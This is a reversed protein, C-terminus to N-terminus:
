RVEQKSQSRLLIGMFGVFFFFVLSIHALGISSSRVFLPLLFLTSTPVYFCAFYLFFAFERKSSLLNVLPLTRLLEFRSAKFVARDLTSSARFRYRGKNEKILVVGWVFLIISFGLLYKASLGELFRLAQTQSPLYNGAKLRPSFDQSWLLSLLSSAPIRAVLPKVDSSMVLKSSKYKNNLEAFFIEYETKKYLSVSAIALNVLLEYERWGKDYLLKWRSYAGEQNGEQFDIQALNSEVVYNLGPSDGGEAVAYKYNEQAAIENGSFHALQGSLVKLLVSNGDKKIAKTILEEVNHVFNNSRSNELARGIKSGSVDLMNEALPVFLILGCVAAATFLPAWRMRSSAYACFISWIIAVYLVPLVLPCMLLVM